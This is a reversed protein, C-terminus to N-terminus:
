YGRIRRDHERLANATGEYAAARIANTPNELFAELPSHESVHLNGLTEATSDNSSKYKLQKPM